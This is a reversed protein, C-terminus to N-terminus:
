HQEQCQWTGETHFHVECPGTAMKIDRKTQLQAAGRRSYDGKGNMKLMLPAGLQDVKQSKQITKGENDTM